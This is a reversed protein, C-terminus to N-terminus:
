QRKALFHENIMQGFGCEGSAIYQPILVVSVIEREAVQEFVNVAVIVAVAIRVIVLRKFCIEFLYPKGVAVVMM